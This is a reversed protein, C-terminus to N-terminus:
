IAASRGDSVKTTDTNAQTEEVEWLPLACSVTPTVSAATRLRRTGSPTLILSTVPTRGCCRALWRPSEPRRCATGEPASKALPLRKGLPLFMVHARSPSVTPHHSSCQAGLGVAGNQEGNQKRANARLSTDRPCMCVCTCLSHLSPCIRLHVKVHVQRTVLSLGRGAGGCPLHTERCLQEM